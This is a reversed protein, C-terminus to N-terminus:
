PNSPVEVEDSTWVTSPLEINSSFAVEVDAPTSALMVQLLLHTTILFDIATCCAGLIRGYLFNSSLMVIITGCCITEKEYYNM